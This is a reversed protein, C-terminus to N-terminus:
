TGKRISVQRLYLDGVAADTILSTSDIFQMTSDSDVFAFQSCIDSMEDCKEVADQLTDVNFTCEENQNKGCTQLIDGTKGPQVGYSGKIIPCSGPDIM